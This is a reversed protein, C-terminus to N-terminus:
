NRRDNQHPQEFYLKAFHGQGKPEYPTHEGILLVNVSKLSRDPYKEPLALSNKYQNIVEPSCNRFLEKDANVDLGVFLYREHSNCQKLVERDMQTSSPLAMWYAVGKERLKSMIKIASTSISKQLDFKISEEINLRKTTSPLNPFIEQAEDVIFILDTEKKRKNVFYYTSEFIGSISLLLQEDHGQVGEDDVNHILYTTKSGNIMDKVLQNVTVKGESWFFYNRLKIFLKIFNNKKYGDGNIIDDLAEKKKKGVNESYMEKFFDDSPDIYERLTILLTEYPDLREDEFYGVDLLKEILSDIFEAANDPHMAPIYNRKKYIELSRGISQITKMNPNQVIDEANIEILKRNYKQSEERLNLGYIRNNKYSGKNDVITIVSNTDLNQIIAQGLGVSKGSGTPGLFLSNRAQGRSKYSKKYNKNPLNGILKRGYIGIELGSIKEVDNDTGNFTKVEINKEPVNSFSGNIEISNDFADKKIVCAVEAIARVAERDGQGGLLFGNAAQHITESKLPQSLITDVTKYGSIKCIGKEIYEDTHRIIEVETNEILKRGILNVVISSTTSESDVVGVTDFDIGNGYDEIVNILNEM